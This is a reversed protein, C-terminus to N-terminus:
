VPATAGSAISATPSIALVPAIDAEQGDGRGVPEIGAPGRRLPRALAPTACALAAVDLPQQGVQRRM